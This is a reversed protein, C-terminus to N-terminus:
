RPGDLWDPILQRAPALYTVIPQTRGAAVRYLTERQAQEEDADGVPEAASAQGVVNRIETSRKRSGRM